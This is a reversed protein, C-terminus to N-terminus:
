SRWRARRSARAPRRWRRRCSSAAARSRRRGDPRRRACRQEVAGVDRAVGRMVRTPARCRAPARPGAGTQASSADLLIQQERAGGAAGPAHVISATISAKGLRLARRRLARRCATPRRAAPSRSRGRASSWDRLAAARRPRARGTAARPRGRRRRRASAQQCRAGRDDQDFLIEVRAIRTAPRTIQM